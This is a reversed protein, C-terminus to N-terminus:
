EDIRGRSSCHQHFGEDFTPATTLHVLPVVNLAATVNSSGACASM